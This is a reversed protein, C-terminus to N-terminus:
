TFRRVAIGAALLFKEVEEPNRHLDADTVKHCVSTVGSNALLRACNICVAASVYATGHQIQSWDARLLANAEAHISECSSYDPTRPEGRLIGQAKRCWNECTGEYPLGKAPGNYGTSNARNDPTVIIAGVQAMCCRSRQGIAEACEMWIQDWGPRGGSM